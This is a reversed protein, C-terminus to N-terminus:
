HPQLEDTEEHSWRPEHAGPRCALPEPSLPDGRSVYLAAMLLVSVPVALALYILFVWYLM